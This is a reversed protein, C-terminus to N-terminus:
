NRFVDALWFPAATECEMGINVEENNKTKFKVIIFTPRSEIVTIIKAGRIANPINTNIARREKVPRGELDKPSFNSNIFDLLAQEKNKEIATIYSKMRKGAPTGPITDKLNGSVNRNPKEIDLVVKAALIKNIWDKHRSVRTYYDKAGYTAPGNKGDEGVSSVGAIYIKKNAEIFAPGGSDGRGSIGELYTGGPPETFSMMIFKEDTGDVINTAARLRFGTTWEGGQGTRTDGHGVLLINKGKEDMKKYIAVPTVGIVPATLHILAIDHPGMDVWQPHIFIKDAKYQKGAFEVTLCNLRGKVSNAVHAATILWQKAILTADGANALKCVQKFSSAKDLYQKDTRDHRKTIAFASYFLLMGILFFSKKM